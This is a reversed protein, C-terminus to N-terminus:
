QCYLHFVWNCLVQLIWSSRWEWRRTILFGRLSGYLVSCSQLIGLTHHWPFASIVLFEHLLGSIRVVCLCSAQVAYQPVEIAGALLHSWDEEFQFAHVVQYMYSRVLKRPIYFHCGHFFCCTLQSWQPVSRWIQWVTCSIGSFTHDSCTKWNSMDSNM